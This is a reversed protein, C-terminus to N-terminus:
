KKKKRGQLAVVTVFALLMPLAVVPTVILPEVQIADATVRAAIMDAVSNEVRHGRVLMRHTNIGYPTCTVLTCLDEGERIALADLEQPLVILIQDIQYTMVQNLVVLTFTDGVVLQDLDTFLKSSPLGRHGTLVAHTSEGGVPLSGGPMCGVGVQLVTEETGLYIPLNVRIAPIEIYGIAKGEAGLFHHYAEREEDTPSFRLNDGLLSANYAEAEALEEAYKDPDLETMSQIYQAIARSQSKSNVYNAISPYLLVSLGIFFILVLLITSIHKKM